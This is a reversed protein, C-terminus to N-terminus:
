SNELSVSLLDIPCGNSLTTLSHPMPSVSVHPRTYIEAGLETPILPSISSGAMTITITMIDIIITKTIISTNM